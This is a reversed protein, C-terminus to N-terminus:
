CCRVLGSLRSCSTSSRVFAELTIDDADAQNGLLRYVYAHIPRLFQEYLMTLTLTVAQAAVDSGRPDVSKEVTMSAPVREESHVAGSDTKVSDGQLIAPIALSYFM